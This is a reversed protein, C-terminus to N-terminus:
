HPLISSDKIPRNNLRDQVKAVQQYAINEFGEGKLVYQRIPGNNNENAGKKGPTSYILM